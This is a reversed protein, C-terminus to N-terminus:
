GNICDEIVREEWGAATAFSQFARALQNMQDRLTDVVDTLDRGAVDVVVSVAASPLTNLNGIAGRVGELAKLTANANYNATLITEREQKTM